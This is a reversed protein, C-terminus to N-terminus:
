EGVGREWFSEDHWICVLFWPLGGTDVAVAVLGIVAAVISGFGLFVGLIALMSGVAPLGSIHRYGDLSGFRWQHIAGRCSLYLNHGGVLLALLEVVLGAPRWLDHGALGYFLSAELLLIPSCCIVLGVGRRLWNTRSDTTTMSKSGVALGRTM